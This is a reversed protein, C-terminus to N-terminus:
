YAAAVCWADLIHLPDGKVPVQFQVRDYVGALEIIVDQTAQNLGVIDTGQRWLGDITSYYWPRITTLLAAGGNIDQKLFLGIVRQGTIRYGQTQLTPAADADAGAAGGGGGVAGTHRWLRRDAAGDGERISEPIRRYGTTM